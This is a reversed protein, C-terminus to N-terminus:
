GLVKLILSMTVWKPYGRGLAKLTVPIAVGGLVDEDLVKLSTRLKLKM